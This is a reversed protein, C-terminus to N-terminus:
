RLTHLLEALVSLELLLQVLSSVKVVVTNGNYTCGCEVLEGPLQAIDAFIFRGVSVVVGPALDKRQM